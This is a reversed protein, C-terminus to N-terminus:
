RTRGHRVRYEQSVLTDITAHIRPRKCLREVASILGNFRPELGLLQTM